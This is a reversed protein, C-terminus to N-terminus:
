RRMISAKSPPAMEDFLIFYDDGTGNRMSAMMEGPGWKSNFSYYRYKWEPSLIADLMAIAQSQRQLESISPIDALSRTSPKKM